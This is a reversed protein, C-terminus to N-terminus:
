VAVPLYWYRQAAITYGLTGHRYASYTGTFMRDTNKGTVPATGEIKAQPIDFLVSERNGDSRGARLMISTPTDNLVKNLLTIDGFYASLAGTVAVEGEGTGVAGLTGIALQRRLNNNLDIGLDTLYSPGAVLTGGEALRGVNSAANLVPYTPAAVDTAGTFRVTSATGTLGIFGLSGTIIAASKFALSLTNVQSGKFLEFSPATLDQQQRELTFGRQTTGNKLFDGFFVQITKPSGAADAGWSTPVIDFSLRTAAIVSIRCWSNNTTTAFASNAVDGGIKVWQGVSLGLTTFDLATSTLANGGTVTAVIDAAAGMFGVVRACAGVPIPLSEISFTSSPFVVTTGSSSAVRSVIANNAVTPFGSTAVLMGAKFPTGLPTVVTLTTATVDSIETDSTAVTIAPASVWTGQLAAEIMDDFAAFSLEIGAPGDTTLDTLIQDTIQRDARIENSTVRTPKFELGNSTVRLAKFAPTTPTTGITSEAVYALSSRNAAGM